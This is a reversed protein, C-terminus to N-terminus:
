CLLTAVSTEVCPVFLQVDHGRQSGGAENMLTRMLGQKVKQREPREPPLAVGNRNCAGNWGLM